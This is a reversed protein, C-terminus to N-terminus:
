KEKRFYTRLGNQDKVIRSAEQIKIIIDFYHKITRRDIKTKYSLGRVSINQTPIQELFNLLLNTDVM